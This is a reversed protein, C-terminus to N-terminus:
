RKKSHLSFFLGMLAMLVIVIVLYRQWNPLYAGHSMSQLWDVVAQLFTTLAVLLISLYLIIDSGDDGRSTRRRGM